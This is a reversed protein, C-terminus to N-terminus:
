LAASSPHPKCWRSPPQAAPRGIGPGGSGAVGARSRSAARATDDHNVRDSASASTDAGSLSGSGRISTAALAFVGLDFTGTGNFGSLDSLDSM